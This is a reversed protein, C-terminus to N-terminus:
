AAALASHDTNCARYHDEIETKILAEWHDAGALWRSANAPDLTAQLRCLSALARYRRVNEM